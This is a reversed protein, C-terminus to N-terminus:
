RLAEWFIRGILLAPACALAVGALAFLTVAVIAAAEILHPGM